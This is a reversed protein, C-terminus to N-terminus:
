TSKLFALEICWFIPKSTSIYVENSDVANSSSVLGDFSSEFEDLNWRLGRTTIVSSAVGVPLIGCTPGVLNSDIEILHEGEDLVWGVNDDTVVYTHKRLKRLKHLYSMTHITQDIRGSLGGLLVLTFQGQDPSSAEIEKMVSICKMLDTSYQDGDKVIPVGLRAYYESVDPRLSDLDGKILDPLFEAARPETCGQLVDFLRNAGGDACARWQCANWVRVLLEQSFPQNLIILARRETARATATVASAGRDTDHLFPTSWHRVPNNTM